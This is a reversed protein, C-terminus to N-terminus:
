TKAHRANMEVLVPPATLTPYTKLRQLELMTGLELIQSHQTQVLRVLRARDVIANMRIEADKKDSEELESDKQLHQETVDVNLEQTQKDLLKNEKRKNAIKTELDEVSKKIELLMKEETYITNEIERELALQGLDEMTGMSKRKLWDQVEKTIKCKEIMKIQDRLDRIKLRLAKHDWEQAIIKRRFQAANVMAKLKKAGARKIIVNIDDVDTRHILICSDFDTMKGSMSVEILGRKMIIQVNRNTSDNFKENQLEQLKTELASLVNKKLSAEKQFANLAAESDALQIECSKLRFESELKIRRMKCLTQWMNLDMGAPCNSMQDLSDCAALFEICEPPLLINSQQNVKKATIRKALDQFISVTVVARLQAKPRRKFIKYAHDVIASQATDSFNIKFQKDLLKDKTNLTEYTNKYDNVKDQLECTIETLEDICKTVESISERLLQANHDYILRQHNYFTNRIIRMEEERIASEIRIKELLCQGVTTNFKQIQDELNEAIELREAELMKKYRTRENHLLEIQEEYDKVERIDTENFYQPDKGTELCHPIPPTKKIEDEWRHELVGDMMMMLARDKFDDAMLERQRQEREAKQQALLNEMSPTLYPAVSIEQDETQLMSEPHEDPKLCPDSITEKEFERMGLLKSIILLERQIVRLRNNRKLVVAMEADKMAKLADIKKNFLDRLRMMEVNGYVKEFYLQQFTVVELQEFRLVIPEMYLHTTTGNLTFYKKTAARSLVDIVNGYDPDRNLISELQYTPTPKWPLLADHSAMLETERYVVMKQMFQDDRENPLSAYNEVALKTFFSRVKLPKRDMTNWCYQIIKENVVEQKVIYDLLRQHETERDHKAMEKLKETITANLNFAQIPLQEEENAVENADLLDRLMARIARFDKTIEVKVPEYDLKESELRSIKEMDIWRTFTFGKPTFGKTPNMFMSVVDDTELSLKLENYRQANTSSRHMKFCDLSGNHGLAFIYQHMLDCRMLKTGMKNRDHAIFYALLKDSKTEYITVLGDISWTTLHFQDVSIHFNHVQHKVKITSCVKPILRNDGDNHLELVDIENSLKKIAYFKSITNPKRELQSYQQLPQCSNVRRSGDVLYIAIQMITSQVVNSQKEQVLCVIQMCEEFVNFSPSILNASTEFHHIIDMTGGPLGKIFFINGDDDFVAMYEGNESFQINSVSAHSLHFETLPKVETPNYVSFLNVIGDHTGVAVFPLTSNEKICSMQEVTCSVLRAGTKVEIVMLEDSSNTAVLYEVLPNVPVFNTLQCDLAKITIFEVNRADNDVVTRVLKGGKTTGYLGDSASYYLHLTFTEPARMNWLQNWVGKQRKHFSISGDTDSLFLGGKCYFIRPLFSGPEDAPKIIQNAQGSTASFSYVSGLRNVVMLTGDILFTGDLPAEEKGFPLKLPKEILRCLRVNGHVEWLTIQAQSYALQCVTLLSAPSCSISQKETQIETKRRILLEKSRWVYVEICYDPLGTLAVLYESESFCLSIYSLTKEDGELVFLVSNEPYAVIFIRPRPCSEAFAYINFSKHGNLCSVGEGSARDTARYFSEERTNVNVLLIHSGTGM